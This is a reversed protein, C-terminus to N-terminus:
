NLTLVVDGISFKMLDAVNITKPYKIAGYYLLNGGTLADRIGVHTILNWNATAEPFRIEANNKVTRRSVTILNGTEPNYIEANESVPANFAVSRRAYSGGSVETGTDAATPNSTYLAVYVTTPFTYSQGRFVGNLIKDALFNSVALAM